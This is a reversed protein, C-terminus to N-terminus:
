PRLPRGGKPLTALRTRLSVRAHENPDLPEHATPPSPLALRSPANRPPQAATRPKATFRRDAALTESEAAVHNSTIRRLRTHAVTVRNSRLEAKSYDSRFRRTIARGRWADLLPPLRPNQLMVAREDRAGSRPVFVFATAPFLFLARPPPPPFVWPATLVFRCCVPRLPPVGDVQQRTASLHV